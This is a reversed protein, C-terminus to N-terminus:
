KIENRTRNQIPFIQGSVQWRVQDYVLWKEKESMQNQRFLQGNVHWFANKVWREICYTNTFNM